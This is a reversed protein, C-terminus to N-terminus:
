VDGDLWAAEARAAAVPGLRALEGTPEAILWAEDLLEGWGPDGRRARVLGLTTLAVIGPTASTRRLRLVTAATDAAETWRGQDLESRSRYALLYMRFLELGREGCWSLGEDLYRAASAHRR